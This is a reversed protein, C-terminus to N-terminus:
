WFDLQGLATKVRLKVDPCPDDVMNKIQPIIGATRLKVVRDYAGPSSPFTLNVVAWVAATRLRSDNSQLFKIIVSQNSNGAKPVVQHMVAEKHFENGTAVNSLVYMGQIGVEVKAASQLQRGVAHLIVGDEVFVYEIFNVCGDVLNRVLALAQEQVFPEPDCILSALLSATLELFAGEKCSKDALFLFNRLARVANARITSDMSKSLQVLQKVGGCQIFTSKRTTFDVVVNCIAGLAALQVSTSPDHLLHVLPIIIMENM